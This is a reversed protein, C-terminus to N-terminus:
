FDYRLQLKLATDTKENGEIPPINYFNVDHGMIFSLSGTIASRAEITNGIYFNESDQFDGTIRAVEAITWSDSLLWELDAESYWTSTELIEEVINERSLYGAGAELTATFPGGSILERGLGASAGYESSIGSIEDKTWYSRAAAFNHEPLSYKLTGETLFKERFTDGNQEGFSAILLLGTKLSVTPMGTMEFGADFQRLDSNGTTVLGGLNLSSEIGSASLAVLGCLVIVLKM